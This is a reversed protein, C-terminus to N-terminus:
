LILVQFGSVQYIGEDIGLMRAGVPGPTLPDSQIAAPLDLVPAASFLDLNRKGDPAIRRPNGPLWVSTKDVPFVEGQGPSGAFAIEEVHTGTVVPRLYGDVTFKESCM